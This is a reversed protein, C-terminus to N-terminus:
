NLFVPMDNSFDVVYQGVSNKIVLKGNNLQVGKGAIVPWSEDYKIRKGNIWLHPIRGCNNCARWKPQLFPPSKIKTQPETPGYGWDYLPEIYQGAMNYKMKIIDGAMSTYEVFDGGVFIDTSKKKSLEDKKIIELVFGCASGFEAHNEVITRGKRVYITDNEPNMSNVLLLLDDNM